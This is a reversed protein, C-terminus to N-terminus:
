PGSSAGPGARAWLTLTHIYAYKIFAHCHVVHACVSLRQSVLHLARVCVCVEDQGLGLYSHSYVRYAHGGVEVSVVRRAVDAAQPSPAHAAHAKGHQGQQRPHYAFTIQTSAGGVELAGAGLIHAHMRTHTHAPPRASSPSLHVPSPLLCVIRRPALSRPPSAPPRPRPRPASRSHRPIRPAHWAAAGGPQEGVALRLRGRGRGVAAGCEGAFHPLAFARPAGARLQGSNGDSGRACARADTRTRM